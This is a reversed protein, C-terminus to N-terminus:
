EEDELGFGRADADGETTNDTITMSFSGGNLSGNLLTARNKIAICKLTPNIYTRKM